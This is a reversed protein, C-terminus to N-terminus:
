RYSSLHDSIEPFDLSTQALKAAYRRAVHCPDIDDISRGEADRTKGSLHSIHDNSRTPVDAPLERPRRLSSWIRWAQRPV